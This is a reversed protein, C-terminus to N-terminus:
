LWRPPLEVREVSNNADVLECAIQTILEAASGADFERLDLPVPNSGAQNASALGLAIKRPGAVPVRKALEGVLRGGEDADPRVDCTM